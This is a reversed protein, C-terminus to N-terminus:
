LRAFRHHKNGVSWRGRSAKVVLEQRLREIEFILWLRNRIESNILYKDGAIHTCEPVNGNLEGYAAKFAKIVTDHTITDVMTPITNSM